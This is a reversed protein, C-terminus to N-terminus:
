HIERLLPERQLSDCLIHFKETEHIQRNYEEPNLSRELCMAQLRLTVNWPVRISFWHVIRIRM